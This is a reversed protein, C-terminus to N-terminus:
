RAAKRLLVVGATLALLVAAFSGLVPPMTGNKALASTFHWVIWYLFIILVSLGLGVSSGGRHSRLGLSSALVAFVFASVPLALKNYLDLEEERTPAGISHLKRIHRLLQSFSLEEARKQYAEIEEPTHRLSVAIGMSSFRNTGVLDGEPPPREQLLSESYGERLRWVYDGNKEGEYRATKARFFLRPANDRFLIVTVDRLSRSAPDIGGQVYVISNTVGNKIDAFPIPKALAVHEKLLRTRMERARATAAPVVNENLIFGLASVVIGLAFVVIVIRYLSVGGAYIAIIESESSLRGIALLTALLVAMPLVMVIIAPLQLAILEGAVGVPLGKVIDNIIKLLDRGAFFISAFAAVGFVFPGLLERIILRDLLRM